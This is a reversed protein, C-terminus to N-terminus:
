LGALMDRCARWLERYKARDAKAQKTYRSHKLQARRIREIGEATKLGTSLGVMYGAADM